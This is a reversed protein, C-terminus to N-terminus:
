QSQHIVQLTHTTVNQMKQQCKTFTLTVWLLSTVDTQCPTGVHTPLQGLHCSFTLILIIFILTTSSRGNIKLLLFEAANILIM